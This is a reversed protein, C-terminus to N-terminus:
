QNFNLIVECKSLDQAQVCQYIVEGNKYCLVEREVLCVQSIIANQMPLDLTYVIAVM